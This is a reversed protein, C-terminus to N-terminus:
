TSLVSSRIYGESIEFGVRQSESGGVLRHRRVRRLYHWDKSKVNWDIPRHPVNKSLSGYYEFFALYYNKQKLSEITDIM